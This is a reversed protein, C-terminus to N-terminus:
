TSRAPEARTMILTASSGLVLISSVADGVKWMGCLIIGDIALHHHLGVTKWSAEPQRTRHGQAQAQGDERRVAAAAQRCEAKNLALEYNKQADDLATGVVVGEKAMGQARDYARKLM